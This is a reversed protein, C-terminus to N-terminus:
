SDTQTHKNALSSGKQTHTHTKNNHNTMAAICYSYQYLGLIRSREWLGILVHLQGAAELRFLIHLLLQGSPQTLQLFAQVIGFFLHAGERLQVLSSM